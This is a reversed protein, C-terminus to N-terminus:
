ICDKGSGELIGGVKGAAAEDGHARAIEGCYRLNLAVFEAESMTDKFRAEYMKAVNCVLPRENYISCLNGDLYKCEGNGDDLEAAEPVDKLTKCCWGCQICPFNV